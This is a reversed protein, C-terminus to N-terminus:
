LLHFNSYNTQVETGVYTTIVVPVQEQLRSYGGWPSSTYTAEWSTTMSQKSVHADPDEHFFASFANMQGLFNGSLSIFGALYKAKWSDTMLSLFSYVTPGGNSHGILFVATNNNLLFASQILKQLSSILGTSQLGEDSSYRFDYPAGYLNKELEYGWSTLAKFFPWYVPDIGLKGGFYKTNISIGAYDHFHPSNSADFDTTLIDVLCSSYKIDLTANPFM